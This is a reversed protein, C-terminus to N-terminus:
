TLVYGSSGGRMSTGDYSPISSESASFRRSNKSWSTIVHLQNDFLVQLMNQFDNITLMNWPHRDNVHPFGSIGTPFDFQNSWEMQSAETFMAQSKCHLSCATERKKLNLLPLTLACLRQANRSFCPRCGSFVRVRHVAYAASKLFLFTPFGRNNLCVRLDCKRAQWCKLKWALFDSSWSLSNEKPQCTTERKNHRERRMGETMRMTMQTDWANQKVSWSFLSVAPLRNATISKKHDKLRNLQNPYVKYCIM